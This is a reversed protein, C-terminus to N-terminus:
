YVNFRSTIDELVGALVSCAITYVLENAFNSVSIM